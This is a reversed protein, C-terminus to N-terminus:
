VLPIRHADLHKAERHLRSPCRNSLLWDIQQGAALFFTAQIPHM